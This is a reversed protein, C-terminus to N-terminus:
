KYKEIIENYQKMAMTSNLLKSKLAINLAYYNALNLNSNDEDIKFHDYEGNKFSFKSFLNNGHFVHLHIAKYISIETDTPVDILNGLKIINLQKTSILHNMAINQGYLLVVGYHWYPWLLPQKFEKEPPSFEESSLYAMSVLTLYSVLRFQEPTSYWTSGLNSVDAYNLNLNFAIRKLRKM